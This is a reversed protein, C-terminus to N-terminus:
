KESPMEKTFRAGMLSASSTTGVMAWVSPTFSLVVRDVNSCSSAKRCPFCTSSTSSLKSCTTLAAGLSESRRARQELRLNNTVLRATSRREASCSNATGGSKSGSRLCRGSRTVSDCYSATARKIARACASLGSKWTLLALAGATASIQARRSPKGRAISSAAARMLSSGGCASSARSPWRRATNVLPPRSAGARCCVSRLVM